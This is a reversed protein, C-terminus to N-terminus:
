PRRETAGRVMGTSIKEFFPGGRVRKLFLTRPDGCGRLTRPDAVRLSQYLNSALLPAPLLDSLRCRLVPWRAGVCMTVTRFVLFPAGQCALQRNQQETPFLGQRLAAPNKHHRGVDHRTARVGLM